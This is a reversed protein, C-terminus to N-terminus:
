GGFHFDPPLIVAAAVLPGAWAARGVEDVGAILRYGGDWLVRERTFLDVTTGVVTGGVVGPRADSVPERDVGDLTAKLFAANEALVGIAALLPWSKM